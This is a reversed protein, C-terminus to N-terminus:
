FAVVKPPAGWPEGPVNSRTREALNHALVTMQVVSVHSCVPYVPVFIIKTVTRNKPNSCYYHRM